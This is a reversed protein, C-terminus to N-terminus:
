VGDIDFMDHQAARRRIGREYTARMAQNWANSGMGMRFASPLEELNLLEAMILEEIARNWIGAFPLDDDDYTSVHFSSAPLNFYVHVTYADDPTALFGIKGGETVFFYEPQGTDTSDEYDMGARSPEPAQPLYETEGDLWVSDLPISHWTGSNLDYEATSDATTITTHSLVLVSEVSVLEGHILDIALNAADMVDNEAYINKGSDRLRRLVRDGTTKLTGM